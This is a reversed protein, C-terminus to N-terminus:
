HLLANQLLIACSLRMPVAHSLHRLVELGRYILSASASTSCQCYQTMEQLHLNGKHPKTLLQSLNIISLLLFFSDSQLIM